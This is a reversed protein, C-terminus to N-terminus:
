EPTKPPGAAARFQKSLRALQEHSEAIRDMIARCEANRMGDMHTRAEEARRLWYDEDWIVKVTPSKKPATPGM